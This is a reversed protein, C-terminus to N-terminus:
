PPHRQAGGAGPRDATERRAGIAVCLRDDPQPLPCLRSPEPTRRRAAEDGSIPETVVDANDGLHRITIKAHTAADMVGARRTDDVMELLAEIRRRPQTKKTM